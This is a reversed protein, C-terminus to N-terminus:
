ARAGPNHLLPHPRGHHSLANTCGNNPFSNARTNAVLNSLAHHPQTNSCCHHSVANAGCNNPFPNPSTNARSNTFINLRFDPSSDPNRHPLCV